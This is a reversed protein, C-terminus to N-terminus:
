HVQGTKDVENITGCRPCKLVLDRVKDFRVGSLLTTECIACVHDTDGDGVMFPARQGVIAHHRGRTWDSVVHMRRRLM